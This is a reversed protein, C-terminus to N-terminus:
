QVRQLGSRSYKGQLGSRSYEGQLGSQITSM